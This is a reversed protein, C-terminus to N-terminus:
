APSLCAHRLILRPLAPDTVAFRFQTQSGDKGLFAAQEGHEVRGGAFGALVGRAIGRQGAHAECRTVLDGMEFAPLQGHLLDLVDVAQQDIVAEVGLMLRDRHRFGLQRVEDLEAQGAVAQEGALDIRQGPEGQAVVAQFVVAAQQLRGEPPETAGAGLRDRVLQVDSAFHGVTDGWAYQQGVFHAQALGDLGAQHNM